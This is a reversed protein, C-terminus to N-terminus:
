IIDGNIIIYNKCHKWNNLFKNEALITYNILFINKIIGL